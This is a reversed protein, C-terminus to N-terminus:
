IRVDDGTCVADGDAYAFYKGFVPGGRLAPKRYSALTRLPEVAREGTEQNTTTVVCRACRIMGRLTVDGIRIKKWDDEAYPACGEVVINPRFRDMPLPTELRANLDDLSASSVVLVSGLDAFAVPARTVLSSVRSGAPDVRVLRAPEGILATLWEAAQAGEDIADVRDVRIRAKRRVKGATEPAIRLEGLGDAAITLSGDEGLATNVLCLRPVKAQAIMDGGPTVVMWARDNTPGFPGFPMREVRVGRCSKIPYIFLDSVRM